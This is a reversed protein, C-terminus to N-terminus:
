LGRKCSVNSALRRHRAKWGCSQWCHCLTLCLASIDSYLYAAMASQPITLERKKEVCYDIYSNFTHPGASGVLAQWLLRGM